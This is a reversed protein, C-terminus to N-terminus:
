VLQLLAIITSRVGTIDTMRGVLSSKVVIRRVTAANRACVMTSCSSSTITAGRSSMAIGGSAISGNASTWTSPM